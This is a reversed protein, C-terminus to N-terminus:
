EPVVCQLVFSWNYADLMEKLAFLLRSLQDDSLMEAPPLQDKSIGTLERLQCVRATREEEEPTPIEWFDMGEAPNYPRPVNDMASKIEEILQNVYLEMLFPKSPSSLLDDPSQARSSCM